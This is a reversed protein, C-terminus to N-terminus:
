AAIRDMEPTVIMGWLRPSAALRKKKLAWSMVLFYRSPFTGANAWPWVTKYNAGTLASVAAPGGLAAMVEAPTELKQSDRRRRM